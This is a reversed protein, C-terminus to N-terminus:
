VQPLQGWLVFGGVAPASSDSDREPAETKSSSNWFLAYIYRQLTRGFPCDRGSHFCVPVISWPLPSLGRPRANLCAGRLARPVVDTVNASTLCKQTSERVLGRPVYLGVGYFGTSGPAMKRPHLATMSLPPWVLDLSTRM